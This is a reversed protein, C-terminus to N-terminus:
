IQLVFHQSNLSPDFFVFGCRFLDATGKTRPHQKIETWARHMDTSQHIDDVVVVSGPHVKSVIHDFYRVTPAFRHNADLFAFDIRSMQDVVPPLVEDINGNVVAVNSIHQQAFLSSALGAVEPSGEITIVHTGPCAALYMTNIGLSTGLELVHEARYHAVARHYLQGYRAGSLSHKAIESIKRHPGSAHKSGAGLDLVKIATHNQLLSTRASEIQRFAHQQHDKDHSHSSAHKGPRVVQTYFDYFFPSHISHADVANLWYTIFSRIQFFLHTL